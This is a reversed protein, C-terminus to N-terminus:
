NSFFGACFAAQAIAMVNPGVLGRGMRMRQELARQFSIEEVSVRRSVINIGQLFPSSKKHANLIQRAREFQEEGPYGDVERDWLFGAQNLVTAIALEEFSSKFEGRFKYWVPYNVVPVEKLPHTSVKTRVLQDKLKDKEGIVLRASMLSAFDRNPDNLMQSFKEIWYWEGRLGFPYIFGREILHRVGEVVTMYPLQLVIKTPVYIGGSALNSLYRTHGEAIVIGDKFAVGEVFDDERLLSKGNFYKLEGRGNPTDGIKDRINMAAYRSQGPRFWSVPLYVVVETSFARFDPTKYSEYRAIAEAIQQSSLLYGWSSSCFLSIFFCFFVIM